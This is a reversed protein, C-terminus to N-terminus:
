KGTKQGGRGKGARRQEGGSEVAEGSEGRRKEARVKETRSRGGRNQKGGQEGSVVKEGGSGDQPRIVVRRGSQLSLYDDM